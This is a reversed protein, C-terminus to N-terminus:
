PRHQAGDEDVFMQLREGIRARLDDALAMTTPPPPLCLASPFRAGHEALALAM